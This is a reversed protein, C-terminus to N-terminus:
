ACEPDNWSAATRGLDALADALEASRDRGPTALADDVAGRLATRAEARQDSAALEKAVALEARATEAAAKTVDTEIPAQLAPAAAPLAPDQAGAFGAACLTALVLRLAARLMPM